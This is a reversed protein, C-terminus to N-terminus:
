ESCVVGCGLRVVSGLDGEAGGVIFIQV